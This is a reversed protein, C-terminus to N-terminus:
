LRSHEKVIAASMSQIPKGLPSALKTWKYNDTDFAEAISGEGTVTTGVVYLRRGFPVVDFPSMKRPLESIQIWDRYTRRLDKVVVTDREDGGLVYLKNNVVAAKPGFRPVDMVIDDTVWTKRDVCYSEIRRNVTELVKFIGGLAYITRNRAAIAFNRRPYFMRGEVSWESGDRRFSETVRLVSLSHFQTDHEHSLSFSVPTGSYM